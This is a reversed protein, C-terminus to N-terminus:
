FDSQIADYVSTIVETLGSVLQDALGNSVAEEGDFSQGQLVAPDLQGRAQKVAALFRDNTRGVMEDLYASDAETLEKGPIGLGKLEGRKFLHLTIGAKKLLATYDYLALVTGVSGVSASLTTTVVRCKCAIWYAASCCMTDTFAVTLKSASLSAMLASTEPIGTVVGGPSNINFVVAKVDERSQLDELTEQLRDVSAIGFWDCMHPDLGKYLPGRIDVLAIGESVGVCYGPSDQSKGFAAKPATLTNLRALFTQLYEPQILPPRSLLPTLLQAPDYLSPM